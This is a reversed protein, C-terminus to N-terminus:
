ETQDILENKEAMINRGKGMIYGATIGWMRNKDKEYGLGLDKMGAIYYAGVFLGTPLEYGAKLHMGIDFMALPNGSVIKQDINTNFPIGNTAGKAHLKNSGGMIYAPDAGLGLYFRGKGQMGTKFVVTVPVDIYYITLTQKVAENLSDNSFFSFDRNEGKQSFYIGSQVYIHKNLGFDVLGGARWSFISSTAASTFEPVPAFYMSSMGVGVEPGLGVQAACAVSLFLASLLSYIFRM